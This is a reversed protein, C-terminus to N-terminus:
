CEVSGEAMLEATAKADRVSPVAKPSIKEKAAKSGTGKMPKRSAKANVSTQVSTQEPSSTSQAGTPAHADAAMAPPAAVAAVSGLGSASPGSTSSGTQPQGPTSAQAALSGVTMARTFSTRKDRTPATSTANALGSSAELAEMVELPNVTSIPYNKLYHHGLLNDTSYLQKYLQDRLGQLDKLVIHAQSQIKGLSEQADIMAQEPTSQRVAQVEADCVEAMKELMELTQHVQEIQQNGINAIEWSEVRAQAKEVVKNAAARAAKTSKGEGAKPKGLRERKNLAGVLEVVEQTQEATAKALERANAAKMEAVQDNHAVATEKATAILRKIEAEAEVLKIKLPQVLTEEASKYAAAAAAELQRPLDEVAAATEARAQKLQAELEAIQRDKELTVGRAANSAALRKEKELEVVKAEAAEARERMAEKLKNAAALKSDAGQGGGVRADESPLAASGGTSDAPDEEATASQPSTASTQMKMVYKGTAPDIVLPM